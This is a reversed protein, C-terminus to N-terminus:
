WPNQPFIQHGGRLRGGWLRVREWGLPLPPVIVADFDDEAIQEASSDQDRRSDNEPSRTDIEEAVCVLGGVVTDEAALGRFEAGDGSDNL